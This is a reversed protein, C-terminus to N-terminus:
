CERDKACVRKKKAPPPPDGAVLGKKAPKKAAKGKADKGKADKAAGGGEQQKAEEQKAVRGVCGERESLPVYGGTAKEEEVKLM